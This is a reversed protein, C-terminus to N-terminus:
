GLLQRLRPNTPPQWAPYTRTGSASPVRTVVGSSGVSAWTGPRSAHESTMPAPQPGDGGAAHLRTAGDGDDAVSGDAEGGHRGGAFEAGLADDGHGAMLRALPQSGREAGGVDDGFAAVFAHGADLVEAAGCRRAAKRLADGSVAGDLVGHSIGAGSAAGVIV